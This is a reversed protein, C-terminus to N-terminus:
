IRRCFFRYMGIFLDPMKEEAQRWTELDFPNAGPGVVQKLNWHVDGEPRFRIFQLGNRALMQSIEPITFQSEQTHLLLDRCGSLSYFDRIRTLSHYEDGAASALISRRIERIENTSVGDESVPNRERYSRIAGRATRSYLGLKLLGNSRLRTLLARLGEEPDKMHHIVGVSDVLEFQEDWGPLDLIDCLRFEINRVGHAEAKRKAYALSRCSIDIAVVNTQPFNLAFQIPHQGTGCGAILVSGMGDASDSNWFPSEELRELECLSLKDPNVSRLKATWRPYPNDEYMSAVRASTKDDIERKGSFDAVHRDESERDSIQEAIFEVVPPYIEELGMTLLQEANGLQVPSRYMLVRMVAIILQLVDRQSDMVLKQIDSEAKDVIAHEAPEVYYAHENKDCQQAISFLLDICLLSLESARETAMLIRKRLATLFLEADPRTLVQHRLIPHILRDRNIAEPTVDDQVWQQIKGSLTSHCIPIIEAKGFSENELIRALDIEFEPTVPVMKTQTLVEFIMQLRSDKLQLCSELADGSRGARLQLDVMMRLLTLQDPYDKLLEGITQLTASKAGHLLQNSLQAYAKDQENNDLMLACYEGLFIDPRLSVCEQLCEEAENFMGESLFYIATLHQRVLRHKPGSGLADLRKKAGAADGAEIARLIEQASDATSAEYIEDLRDLLEM